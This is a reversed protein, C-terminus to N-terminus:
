STIYRLQHQHQHHHHHHHQADKLQRLYMRVEPAGFPNTTTTATTTPAQRGMEEFAVRLRGILADISGWNNNNKQHDLYYKLFEVVHVGSCDSVVLEPRQEKLYQLFSIWDRRKQSEYRSGLTSLVVASSRRHRNNQALVSSSSYQHNQDHSRSSSNSTNRSSCCAAAAAAIAASM